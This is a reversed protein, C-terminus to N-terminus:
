SFQTPRPLHKWSKGSRILSLASLSVGLRSAMNSLSEPDGREWNIVAIVDAETLASQNSQEGFAQRGKAVKDQINRLQTGLFLHNPKVCAPNDCSHLVCMGSPIQGHTIQWSVSHATLTRYQLYFKGYGWRDLNGLYNWCGPQRKVNSWFREIAQPSFEM